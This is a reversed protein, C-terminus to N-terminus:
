MAQAQGDRRLDAAAMRAGSAPDIGIVGLSGRAKWAGIAQVDHGRAALGRVLADDGYRQEVTLGEDVAHPHNSYTGDQEHCWRPAQAAEAENLGHDVMASIVQFNTQV